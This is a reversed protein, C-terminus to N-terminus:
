SDIIEVHLRPAKGGNEEQWFENQKVLDLILDFSTLNRPIPIDLTIMEMTDPYLPSPLPLHMYDWNNSAPDSEVELHFGINYPSISDGDSYIVQDTLNTLVLSIVISDVRPTKIESLPSYLQVHSTKHSNLQGLSISRKNMLVELPDLSRRKIKELVIASAIMDESPNNSRSLLFISAIISFFSKEASLGSSYWARFFWNLDGFKEGLYKALFGHGHRIYVTEVVQYGNPQLRIALSKQDYRREFGGHYHASIKEEYYALSPVSIFVKGGPKLAYWLNELFDMDGSGPFHEIASILTAKDYVEVQDFPTTAHNREDCCYRDKSIGEQPLFNIQHAIANSDIENLVGYIDSSNKLAFGAFLDAGTGIDIWSEGKTKKLFDAALSYEHQRFIDMPRDKSFYYRILKILLKWESIPHIKQQFFRLPLFLIDLLLFFCIKKRSIAKDFFIKKLQQFRM